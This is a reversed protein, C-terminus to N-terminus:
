TPRHYIDNTPNQSTFLQILEIKDCITVFNTFPSKTASVYCYGTQFLGAMLIIITILVAVLCAFCDTFM